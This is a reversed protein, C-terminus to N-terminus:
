ESKGLIDEFILCKCHTVVTKRLLNFNGNLSNTVTKMLYPVWTNLPEKFKKKVV